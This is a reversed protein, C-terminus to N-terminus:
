PNKAALLEQGGYGEGKLKKKTEGVGIAATELNTSLANEKTQFLQSEGPTAGITIGNNLTKSDNEGFFNAQVTTTCNIHVQVFEGSPPEVNPTPGKFGTKGWFETPKGEPQVGEASWPMKGSTVLITGLTEECTPDNCEYPFFAQVKGVARGGTTPNEGYGAFVNHCEVEGLKENHLQLTGWAIGNIHLGAEGVSGNVYIHPCNPATCPATPFVAQSVAPMVAFAATVLLPALCILFKKTM